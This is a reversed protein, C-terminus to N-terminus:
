SLDNGSWRARERSAGSWRARAWGNSTWGDGSWRARNWTGDSWSRGQASAAFWVTGDWPVGQVDVEGSLEAGTEPDVLYVGGRAADLSGSATARPHDQRAALLTTSPDKAETAKKVAKFAESVDLQGAGGDLPDVDELGIATSVLAAKSAVSRGPALLDVHRAPTGRSSYDAVTSKKGSGDAKGQPDNSGVAIVYPDIAPDTLRPADPGGNDGSVVVVLGQRWANEAAAALPDLQYPQLSATGFSLNM